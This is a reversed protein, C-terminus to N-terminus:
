NDAYLLNVENSAHSQSSPAPLRTSEVDPGYLLSFNVTIDPPNTPFMPYLHAKPVKKYMYVLNKIPKM